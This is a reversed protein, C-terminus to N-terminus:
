RVRASAATEKEEAKQDSKSEAIDEKAGVADEDEDDDDEKGSDLKSLKWARKGEKGEVKAEPSLKAEAVESDSHDEQTEEKLDKSPIDKSSSKKETQTLPPPTPAAAAAVAKSQQPNSKSKNKRHTVSSRLHSAPLCPSASM